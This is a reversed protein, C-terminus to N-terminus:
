ASEATEPSATAGDAGEEAGRVVVVPCPAHQTVHHSVSGLLAARFGARGRDGVVLLEAGEAAELLVDAPNGVIVRREIAVPPEGGFTEEIADALARDGVEEPVYAEPMVPMVGAWSWSTLSEWAIVAQLEAGTLSAQRAAWRLARKSPEGGDVGVVIRGAAANSM